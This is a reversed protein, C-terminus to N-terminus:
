SLLNTECRLIQLCELIYVQLTQSTSYRIYLLFMDNKISKIQVCLWNVDLKKANYMCCWFLKSPCFSWWQLNTEDSEDFHSRRYTGWWPSVYFNSQSKPQSSCLRCALWFCPQHFHQFQCKHWNCWHWIRSQVNWKDSSSWDYQYGFITKWRTSIRKQLLASRSFHDQTCYLKNHYLGFMQLCVQHRFQFLYWFNFYLYICVVKLYFKSMMISMWLYIELIPNSLETTSNKQPIFRLSTFSTDM